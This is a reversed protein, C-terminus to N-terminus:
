LRPLRAPQLRGPLRWPLPRRSRGLPRPMGRFRALDLELAPGATLGITEREIAWWPGPLATTLSWLVRRLSGRAHAQDLEPWLLAALEDRRLSAGTVALYALLALGKNRELKADFGDYRVRPSGLLSLALSPM